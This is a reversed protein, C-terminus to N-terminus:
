TPPQEDPWHGHRDFFDRAEDETARERDGKVGVRYLVNLLWVSLGAGVVMAGAESIDPAAIMMVIGAICIAIPLIWRVFLTM